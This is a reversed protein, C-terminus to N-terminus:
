QFLDETRKKQSNKNIFEHLGQDIGTILAQIDESYLHWVNYNPTREYFYQWIRIECKSKYNQVVFYPTIVKKNANSAYADCSMDTFGINCPIVKEVNQVSNSKATNKWQNYKAQIARLDAKFNSVKNTVSSFHMKNNYDRYWDCISVYYDGNDYYYSLELRNGGKTNIKYSYFIFSQAYSNGFTIVGWIILFLHKM